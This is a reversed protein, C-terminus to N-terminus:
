RRNGDYVLGALGYRVFFALLSGMVQSAVTLTAVNVLDAAGSRARGRCFVPFGFCLSPEM